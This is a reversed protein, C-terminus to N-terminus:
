EPAVGARAGLPDAYLEDVSFTAAVSELQVQGAPGYEIVRWADGERRWVEVLPERQSVLVYERFSGLQRYHRFKEGRDYAESSDSLVEVIVSPNIMAEVDFPSRELRGCVVSLDPYVARNAAEIRIKGDATFVECPRDALAAGILRALRAALRTHEISGGAMARVVGDLFEHKVGIRRELAVYEAYSVGALAPEAM